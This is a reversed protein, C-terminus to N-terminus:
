RYCETRRLRFYPKENRVTSSQHLDIDAYLIQESGDAKAMINGNPDIVISQGIFNMHDEMGVRNCMAIFVSSQMAQVRIEWEFLELPEGEINATPILILDAGLAACTRVSEPLHRDFCIVIGIKGFPSEYVKFGDDSPTYYDQEYFYQSQSIHVMKSIGQLEGSASIMLSADYYANGEKLYLNPSSIIGLERSKETMRQIFNHECYLSYQERNLKEYQPFFPYFQLEPFFILDAKNQAAKEMAQLSAQLNLKMNNDMKMQALAIKM